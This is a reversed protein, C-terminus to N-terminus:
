PERAGKAHAMGPERSAPTTQERSTSTTAEGPRRAREGARLRASRSRPNARREDASAEIPKGTLARWRGDRVRSAFFRKVERDEGSHFSIVALRGGTALCLDAAGLGAQLEDGEENVARRLAQFSRTAPHLKSTGPSRGVAHAIADALAATRLFPARRRGAVIARAVIRARTEGGEYFLLDALDREDWRNVIDAATRDRSPDMRMDLPGDHQFSFGRAASDLQMSSVGLDFLMGVVPEAREDRIVRALQSLRGRCVRVRSGFRARGCLRREALEVALPDQDVALVRADPLAELLLAAHGGAGVTADVIWGRAQARDLGRFIEVVEASLVPIHMPQPSECAEDSQMSAIEVGSM